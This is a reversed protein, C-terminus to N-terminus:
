KKWKWKGTIHLYAKLKELSIKNKCEKFTWSDEYVKNKKYKYRNLIYFRELNCHYKFLRSMDLSLIVLQSNFNNLYEHWSKIQFLKEFM